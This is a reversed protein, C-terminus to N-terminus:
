WEIIHKFFSVSSSALLFALEYLRVDFTVDNSFTAVEIMAGSWLFSLLLLVLVSCDHQTVDNAM